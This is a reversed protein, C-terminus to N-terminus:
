YEPPLPVIIFQHGWFEAPDMLAAPPSPEMIIHGHHLPSRGDRKKGLVVLVLYSFPLDDRERTEM